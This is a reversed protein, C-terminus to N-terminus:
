DTRKHRRSCMQERLKADHAELLQRGREETIQEVSIIEPDITIIEMEDRDAMLAVIDSKHARATVILPQDDTYRNLVSFTEAVERALYWSLGNQTEPGCGRYVAVTDPLSKYKRWEALTMMQKIPANGAFIEALDFMHDSINDFSCWHEGLLNLWPDLHMEYRLDMLEDLRTASDCSCLLDNADDYTTSTEDPFEKMMPDTM